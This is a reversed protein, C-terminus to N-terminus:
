FKRYSRGQMSSAYSRMSQADYDEIRSIQRNEDVYVRWTPPDNSSRRTPSSSSSAYRRSENRPYQQDFQVEGFMSDDATHVHIRPDQTADASTDQEFRELSPCSSTDDYSISADTEYDDKDWSESRRRRRVVIFVVLIAVVLLVIVIGVTAAPALGGDGPMVSGHPVRNTGPEAGLGEPVPLDNSPFVDVETIGVLGAIGFNGYEYPARALADEMGTSDGYVTVPGSVELCTADANRASVDTCEDTPTRPNTQTQMPTGSFRM